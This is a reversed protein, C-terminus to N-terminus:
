PKRVAQVQGCAASARLVCERSAPSVDCRPISQWM